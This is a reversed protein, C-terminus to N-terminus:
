AYPGDASPVSAEDEEIRGKMEAFLKAQLESTDALAAEAYANEAELYTRIGPDLSSPNRMVEQWNSAKLWAYEDTLTVGHWQSVSPRQEACPADRRPVPPNSAREQMVFWITLFQDAPTSARAHGRRLRALRARSGRGGFAVRFTGLTASRPMVQILRY